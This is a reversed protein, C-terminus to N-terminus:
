IVIDCNDVENGGGKKHYFRSFHKEKLSSPLMDFTSFCNSILLTTDELIPTAHWRNCM